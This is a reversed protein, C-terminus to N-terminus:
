GDMSMASREVIKRSYSTIIAHKMCDRTCLIYVGKLLMNRVIHMVAHYQSSKLKSGDSFENM